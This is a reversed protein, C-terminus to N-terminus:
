EAFVSKQLRGGLFAQRRPLGARAGIETCKCAAVAGALELMRGENGGEGEGAPLLDAAAAAAVPASSAASALGFLMAGIFSDGAGTTDVLKEIPFAAVSHTEERTVVMSGDESCTVVGLLDEERLLLDAEVWM